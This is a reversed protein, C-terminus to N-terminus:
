SERKHIFCIVFLVFITKILTNFAFAFEMQFGSFVFTFLSAYVIIGIHNNVNFYQYALKIMGITFFFFLSVGILGYSYSVEAPWGPNIKTIHNNISIVGIEKGFENGISIPKKEPYFIRPVVSTMAHTAVNYFPERYLENKHYSVHNLMIYPNGIRSILSQTLNDLIDDDINKIASMVSISEGTEVVAQAQSLRIATMSFFVSASLSIFLITKKTKIGNYISHIIFTILLPYIIGFRRGQIVAYIIMISLTVWFIAKITINNEKKDFFLAAVIPFLAIDFNSFYKVSSSINQVEAYKDEIILSGSIFLQFKSAYSIALFALITFM